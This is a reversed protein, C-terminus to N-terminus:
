MRNISTVEVTAGVWTFEIAFTNGSFDAATITTPTNAPIFDVRGLQTSATGTTSSVIQLLDPRVSLTDGAVSFTFGYITDTLGTCGTTTTVCQGIEFDFCQSASGAPSLTLVAPLECAGAMPPELSSRDIQFVYGASLNIPGDFVDAVEVTNAVGAFVRQYRYGMADLEAIAEADVMATGVRGSSATLQDRPYACRLESDDDLIAVVILHHMRPDDAAYLMTALGDPAGLASNPDGPEPFADVSAVSTGSADKLAVSDDSGFPPRDFGGEYRDNTYTMDAIAGSTSELSLRAPGPKSAYSLGEGLVCHPSVPRYADYDADTLRTLAVSGVSAFATWTSGDHDVATLNKAAAEDPKALEQAETAKVAPQEPGDSQGCAVMGLGLLAIVSLRRKM